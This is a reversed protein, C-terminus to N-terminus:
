DNSKKTECASCKCEFLYNRTLESRDVDSTVYSITIEDAPRLPALARVTARVNVAPTGSGAGMEASPVCSHNAFHHVPFISIFEVLGSPWGGPFKQTCVNVAPVIALVLERDSASLTSVESMIDSFLADLPSFVRCVSSNLAVRGCLTNLQDASTLHRVAERFGVSLGKEDITAFAKDQLIQAWERLRADLNEPVGPLTRVHQIWNAGICSSLETELDGITSNADTQTLKIHENEIRSATLMTALVLHARPGEKSDAQTLPWWSDLRRWLDIVSDDAGRCLWPHWSREISCEHCVRLDCCSLRTGDAGDGASAARQREAFKPPLSRFAGEADSESVPCAESSTAAASRFHELFLDLPAGLVRGCLCCCFRAEVSGTHVPGSPCVCGLPPESLCLDGPSFITGDSKNGQADARVRLGKGAGGPADFVEVLERLGAM